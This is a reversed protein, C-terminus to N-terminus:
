VSVSASACFVIYYVILVLLSLYYWCKVKREKKLQIGLTEALPYIIMLLARGFMMSSILPIGVIKVLDILVERATFDLGICM